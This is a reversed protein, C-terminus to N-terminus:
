ILDPKATIFLGLLHRRGLGAAFARDTTGHSRFALRHNIDTVTLNHAILRGQDGLDQLVGAVRYLQLIHIKVSSNRGHYSM